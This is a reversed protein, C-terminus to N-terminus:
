SLGDCNLNQGFEVMMKGSPDSQKGVIQTVMILGQRSHGNNQYLGLAVNFLGIFIVFM